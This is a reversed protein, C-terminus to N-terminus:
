KKAVNYAEQYINELKDIGMAQLEQIYENWSSSLNKSGIIVYAAYQKILGSSDAVILAMEKSQEETYSVIPRAECLKELLKYREQNVIVDSPNTTANMGTYWYDPTLGPNDVAGFLTHGNRIASTSDGLDSDLIFDYSGDANVKYTVDKVGLRQMISGEESYLYDAWAIIIEPNECADTICLTGKKFANSKQLTNEEFPHLMVYKDCQKVGVVSAAGQAFVCGYVDGSSGTAVVQQSDISFASKICLGADYCKALFTLAKKYAESTPVYYLNGEEDIATRSAADYSNTIYPLIADLLSTGLIGLPIEDKVGNKNPDQTKFAVLLDYLEDLNKPQEKIGLNDMWVQNIWIPSNAQFPVGLSPLSYINGDGDAMAKWLDREDLLKCLNPAHAKILDTLELLIGQKGLSSMDADNMDCKFLVEPYTGSNLILNKKESLDSKLVSTYEFTVNTMKSLELMTTNEEYPYNAGPVCALMTFTTPEELPFTVKTIEQKDKDNKDGTNDSTQKGCAVAMVSLILIMMIALIKKKM